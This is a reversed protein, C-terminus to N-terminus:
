RTNPRGVTGSPVQQQEVLRDRVDRNLDMLQNVAIRSLGREELYRQQDPTLEFVQGTAQAKEVIEHDSLGAQKMAVIEDMTVFGDNNLDATPANMAQQPTAPTTQARRVAEEAGQTDRGMIRDSNAGIVYGGGAGVAGGLIAVLVRHREGGGAAGAVAGGVGGIVAGQQKPTGPLQECGTIALLTATALGTFAVKSILNQNLM